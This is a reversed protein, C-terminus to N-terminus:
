ILKIHPIGNRRSICHSSPQSFRTLKIFIMLLYSLIRQSKNVEEILRNILKLRGLPGCRPVIINDWYIYNLRMRQAQRLSIKNTISINKASVGNYIIYLVNNRLDGTM